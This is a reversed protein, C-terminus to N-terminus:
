TGTDGQVANDTPLVASSSVLTDGWMWKVSTPMPNVTVTCEITSSTGWDVDYEAPSEVIPPDLM